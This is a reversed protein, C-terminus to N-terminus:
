RGGRLKKLCGNCTFSTDTGNRLNAEFTSVTNKGGCNRCVVIANNQEQAPQRRTKRKIGATIKKDTDIDKTELSLDDIFNNIFNSQTNKVTQFQQNKNEVAFSQINRLSPNKTVTITQEKNNNEFELGESKLINEIREWKKEQHALVLNMLIDQKKM